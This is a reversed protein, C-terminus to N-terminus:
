ERRRDTRRPTPPRSNTSTSLPLILTFTSGVGEASVLRIEGGHAEIIAKTVYLGLGLGRSEEEHADDQYFRTFLRRQNQPSIGPGNDIIRITVAEADAVAEFTVTGGSPTNQWANRLLNTIAWRLRKVDIYLEPLDPQVDVQFTLERRDMPSRWSEVIETLLANLRADRQQLGLWGRAEMESFDLLENIMAVLSDTHHSITELFERQQENLTRDANALMLTLYGKVVTLPTRLEHSVHAVFADKLQEAEVEATVDRLVIVTGLQEDDDTRVAASHTSIVKKGVGFRRSELLWPTLPEVTSHGYDSTSLERLPGFQFNTSLETILNEAAPNLPLLNGELDELMVGDGISLLIARIRSSAERYSQLLERLEVTRQSLRLTMEDFTEALVGIEDASSIGTRQELDGEAVALSTDVLRGLPRTILRAIFYGVIVVAAMAMGFITLYTDRSQTRSTVIYDAPLAVAFVGIHQDGVRLSGRALSFPRGYLTVNEGITYETEFLLEQYMQASIALSELTPAEPEESTALTLTTAVAEGDNLYVIIDALATLKLEPLLTDLSTGVVIVGVTQGDLDVSLATFYYYRQNLPYLGLGRLQGTDTGPELLEQVLWMQGIGTSQEPVNYSGDRQRLLNLMEQGNRDVVILCEIGLGSAFPHALESIRQQNSNALAQPFDGTFALMQAGQLHRVEQTTLSESVVRGAEILHNSLREELSESVLNIVVYVGVVAVLFTLILYPFIIKYRLHRAFPRLLKQHWKLNQDRTM